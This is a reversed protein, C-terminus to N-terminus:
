SLRSWTTGARSWDPRPRSCPCADEPVLDRLIQDINGKKDLKAFEGLAKNPTVDTSPLPQGLLTM